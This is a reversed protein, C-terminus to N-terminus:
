PAIAGGSQKWGIFGEAYNRVNSYGMLQLTEAALPSRLGAGCYAVIPIDKNPALNQVRFELWGRPINVNQPADIRGGLKKIEDPTRIDILVLDPSQQTLVKLGATDVMQTRSEARGQMAKASPIGQEAYAQTIYLSLSILM